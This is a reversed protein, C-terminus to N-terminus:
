KAGTSSRDSSRFQPRCHMDRWACPGGMSVLVKRPGTYPARGHAILLNDIVLVDGARWGFSREEIAFAARVQALDSPSFETGDGWRTTKPVRDPGVHELILQALESGVTSVHFSTAQNFWVWEASAPHRVVAPRVVITRLHDSALREVTTGTMGGEHVVHDDPADPADQWGVGVDPTLNRVYQVGLDEFRTRLTGPLRALVKRSDALPTQGGSRGAVSCAFGLVLPWEDAYCGENHLEIAQDAPYETSTYVGDALSTRPTAADRYTMPQGALLRIVHPLANTGDAFGRFLAAGHHCLLERVLNINADVWPTLPAPTVPTIEAVLQDDSPRRIRAAEVSTLSRRPASRLSGPSPNNTTM